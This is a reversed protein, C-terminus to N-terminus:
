LCVHLHQLWERGVEGIQSRIKIWTPADDAGNKMNLVDVKATPRGEGVQSECQDGQGAGLVWFRDAHFHM